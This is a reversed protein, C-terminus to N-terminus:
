YWVFNVGGIAEIRNMIKDILGHCEAATKKDTNWDQILAELVEDKEPVVFACGFNYVLQGVYEVYVSQQKSAIRRREEDYFNIKGLFATGHANKFAEIQERNMDNYVDDAERLALVGGTQALYNHQRAQIERLSQMM